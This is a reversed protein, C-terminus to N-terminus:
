PITPSLFFLYFTMALWWVLTILGAAVLLGLLVRESRGPESPQASNQAADVDTRTDRDQKPEAASM